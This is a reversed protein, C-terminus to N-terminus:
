IYVYHFIFIFFIYEITYDLSTMLAIFGFVLKKGISSIARVYFHM